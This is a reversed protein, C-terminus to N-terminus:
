KKTFILEKGNEQELCLKNGDFSLVEAHYIDYMDDDEYSLTMLTKIEGAVTYVGIDASGDYTKNDSVMSFALDMYEERPTFKWTNGYNDKWEGLLARWLIGENSSNVFGEKEYVVTFDITRFETPGDKLSGTFHISLQDDETNFHYANVDEDETVSSKIINSITYEAEIEMTKDGGATVGDFIIKGDEAKISCLPEIWDGSDDLNFVSEILSGYCQGDYMIFLEADYGFTIGCSYDGNNELSVCTWSGILRSDGIETAIASSSSNNANDKEDSNDSDVDNDADNNEVENNINSDNNQPTDSTSKDGCGAFMTIIMVMALVISLLRFKKM